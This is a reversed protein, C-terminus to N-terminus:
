RLLLWAIGVVVTGAYGLGAAVLYRAIQRNTM